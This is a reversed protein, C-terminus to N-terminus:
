GGAIVGSKPEAQMAPLMSPREPGKNKAQQQEELVRRYEMPFVKIMRRVTNEWDGLLEAAKRSGTRAKHEEIMGATSTDRVHYTFTDVGTFFPGPTYHFIGTVPDVELLKRARRRAVTM